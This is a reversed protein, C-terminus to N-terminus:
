ITDPLLCRFTYQSSRVFNDNMKVILYYKLLWCKNSSRHHMVKEQGVMHTKRLPVSSRPRENCLLESWQSCSHSSYNALWSKVLLPSRQHVWYILCFMFVSGLLTKYCINMVSWEGTRQGRSLRRIGCVEPGQTEPLIRRSGRPGVPGVSRQVPGARRDAPPGATARLDGLILRDDYDSDSISIDVEISNCLM